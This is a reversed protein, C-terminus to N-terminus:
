MHGLNFRERKAGPNELHVKNRPDNFSLGAARSAVFSTGREDSELGKHTADLLGKTLGTGTQRTMWDSDTKLLDAAQVMEASFQPKDQHTTIRKIGHKELKKVVSPTVRTGITYHLVPRELYKGAVSQLGTEKAGERPQYVSAVENYPVLDGPAYDGFEENIRVRNVLGKAVLEINRRNSYMGSDKIASRLALTFQRAGEGLGKHEIIKRPNLVGDSLADGAEVVDGKKVKLKVGRPVFFDQGSVKVYQGGQPAESVGEVTGDIDSYTASERFDKPTNFLKNILDFGKLGTDEEALGGKHKASLVSQTVPESIAQGATIGVAAGREPLRDGERHGVDKAYVGGDPDATTIPSRVLIEDHGKKKLQQLIKPTLVTNRKYGAIDKALLAGVNDDDDTDVPLGRNLALTDDRGDEETVVLRHAANGILKAMYGGSAVSLKAENIGKRAGFTSAVFEGPTMGQSYSRLVPVPIPKGLNDAYMLDSSVLRALSANNGRGAGKIIKALPNDNKDVEEFTLRPDDKQAKALIKTILEDQMEPPADALVEQIDAQLKLRRIEAGKPTKLDAISFSGGGTGEGTDRGLRMLKDAIPGYEEPREAAVQGLIQKISKKNIEMGPVYSDGLIKQLRYQGVTKPKAM